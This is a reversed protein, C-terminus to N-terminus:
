YTTVWGTMWVYGWFDSCHCPAGLPSLFYLHCFLFGNRCIHGYGPGYLGHALELEEPDQSSNVPEEQYVADFQEVGEQQGDALYGRDDTLPAIAEMFVESNEEGNYDVFPSLPELNQEVNAWTLTSTALLLFLYFKM